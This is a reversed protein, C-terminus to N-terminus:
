DNHRSNGIQHAERELLVNQSGDLIGLRKGVGADRREVGGEVM